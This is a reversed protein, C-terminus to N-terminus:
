TIDFELWVYTDLTDKEYTKVTTEIGVAKLQESILEAARSRLPDNSSLLEFSLPKGTEDLRIGQQNKNSYGLADLKKNAEQKNHTWKLQPNGYPSNPSYFGPSGVDAKGLFVTDVIANADLAMSVAIRFEDNDFPKVEENMYLMASAYGPGEIIKLNPNTKFTDLLEPTLSGTFTTYEGSQIGQYISSTDTIIPMNITKVQVQGKFYNDAASLVYKQNQVYETLKYMGSGVTSTVTKANEIGNYIHKPIIPLEALVEAAFNLESAKTKLILTNNVIEISSVKEAAKKWRTTQQTPAYEFTFKVDELTVPKGDHWMLGDNLTITFQTCDDNIDCSKAMWPVPNNNEDFIYLSDYILRTVDLGPTGTLYTFPTLTNEDKTIAVVISDATGSEKNSSSKQSCATLASIMVLSLVAAVFKKWM